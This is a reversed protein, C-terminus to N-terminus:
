KQDHILECADNALKMLSKKIENQLDDYIANSQDVYKQWNENIPLYTSGMEFM